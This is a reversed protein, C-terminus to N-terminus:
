ASATTPASPGRVVTEVAMDLAWVVTGLVTTETAAGFTEAVPGLATAGSATGLVATEAVTGLSEAM